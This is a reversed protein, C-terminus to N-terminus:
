KRQRTWPIGEFKRIIAAPVTGGNRDIEHLAAEISTAGFAVVSTSFTQENCHRVDQVGDLWAVAPVQDIGLSAFLLPDVVVDVRAHGKHRDGAVNRRIKEVLLGTPAVQQAGGVFGRLIVLAESKGDLQVMYDHLMAEPMSSSLAVVLRGAVPERAQGPKQDETADRSPTSLLPSTAQMQVFREDGRRSAQAALARVRDQDAYQPVKFRELDFTDPQQAREMAQHALSQARNPDPVPTDAAEISSVALVCLLWRWLRTM